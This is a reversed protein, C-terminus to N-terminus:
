YVDQMLAAAVATASLLLVGVYNVSLVTIVSYLPILPFMSYLSYATM